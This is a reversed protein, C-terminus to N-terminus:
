YTTMTHKVHPVNRSDDILVDFMSTSADIYVSCTGIARKHFRTYERGTM